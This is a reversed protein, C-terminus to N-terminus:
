RVLFQGTLVALAETMDDVLAAREDTTLPTRAAGNSWAAGETDVHAIRARPNYDLNLYATRGSRRYEITEPAVIQVATGDARAAGGENLKEFKM